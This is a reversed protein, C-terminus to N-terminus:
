KAYNHIKQHLIKPSLLCMEKTEMSVAVHKTYGTSLRAGTIKDTILFDFRMGYESEVLSVKVIILQQFTLSKVYRVRADIVPWLYGSTHMQRYNYDLQDLLHCRAKEFYKLYNGHWVIEMPDVDYFPVQLEIQTSIETM